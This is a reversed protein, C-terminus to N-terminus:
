EVGPRDRALRPPPLAGSLWAGLAGAVVRHGEPSLHGDLRFFPREGARHSARLVPALDVFATGTAAAVAALEDRVTERNLQGSGPYAKELSAWIRDSTTWSSPMLVIVPLSSDAVIECVLQRLAWGAHRWHEGFGSEHPEAFVYADYPFYRVLNESQGLRAKVLMARRYLASHVGLFGILGSHDPTAAPERQFTYPGVDLVRDAADHIYHADLGDPGPKCASNRIDNQDTVCILVVD